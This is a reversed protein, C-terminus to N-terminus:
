IVEFATLVMLLTFACAATFAINELSM